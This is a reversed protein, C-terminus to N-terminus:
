AGVSCRFFPYVTQSHGSRSRRIWEVPYGRGAAPARDAVAAAAPSLGAHFVQGSLPEPLENAQLRRLFAAVAATGHPAAPAIAAIGTQRDACLEGLAILFAAAALAMRRQFVKDSFPESLERNQGICSLLGSHVAPFAPAVAAPFWQLVSGSGSRFFLLAATQLRGADDVIQFQTVTRRHCHQFSGFAVGNGGVCASIRAHIPRRSAPFPLRLDCEFSFRIIETGKVFQFISHFGSFVSLFHVVVKQFPIVCFM